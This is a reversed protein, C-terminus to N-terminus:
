SPLELNAGVDRLARVMVKAAEWAKTALAVADAMSDTIAATAYLGIAHWLGDVAIAAPMFEATVAGLCVALEHSGELWTDRCSQYRPAALDQVTSDGIEALGQLVAVTDRHTEFASAGCGCMSTVLVILALGAGALLAYREDHSM